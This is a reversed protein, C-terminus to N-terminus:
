TDLQNTILLYFRNKVSKKHKNIVYHAHLPSGDSLPSATGFLNFVAARLHAVCQALFGNPLSIKKKRVSFMLSSWFLDESQM